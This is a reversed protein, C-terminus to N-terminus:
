TPSFFRGQSIVLEAQLLEVQAASSMHEVSGLQLDVCNYDEQYAGTITDVKMYVTYSNDEYRQLFVDGDKLKGFTTTPHASYSIKM